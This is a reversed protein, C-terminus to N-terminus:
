LATPIRWLYLLYTKNAEHKFYLYKKEASSLPSHRLPLLYTKNAEHKFYLYKKKLLLSLLIASLFYSSSNSFNPGGKRALLFVSMGLIVSVGKGSRDEVESEPSLLSSSFSVHFCPCPHSLFFLSDLRGPIEFFVFLNACFLGFFTLFWPDFSVKIRCSRILDM